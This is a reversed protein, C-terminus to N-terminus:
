VLCANMIVEQLTQWNQTAGIFAIEGPVSFVDPKGLSDEFGLECIRLLCNKGAAQVLDEPNMDDMSICSGDTFDMSWCLFVSRKACPNPQAYCIVEEVELLHLAKELVMRWSWGRTTIYSREIVLLDALIEPCANKGAKLEAVLIVWSFFKVLHPALRRGSNNARVKNSYHRANLVIELLHLIDQAVGKLEGIEPITQYPM